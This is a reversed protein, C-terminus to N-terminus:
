PSTNLSKDACTSAVKPTAGANRSTHNVYSQAMTSVVTVDMCLASKGAKLPILTLGDPLIGDSRSFGTPKVMAPIEVRKLLVVSYIM